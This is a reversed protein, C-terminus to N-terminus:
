RTRGLTPNRYAQLAEELSNPLAPVGPQQARPQAQQQAANLVNKAAMGTGLGLGAAPLAGGAAGLLAGKTGGGSGWGAAAGSGAGIAAILLPSAAGGTMATALGAGAIGGYKALKHWFGSGDQSLEGDHWHYGQPAPSNIELWDDDKAKQHQGVIDNELAQQVAQQSSGQRAQVGKQYQDVSAMFPDADEKSFGFNQYNSSPQQPNIGALQKDHQSLSELTAAKGYMSDILEKPLGGEPLRFGGTTKGMADAIAPDGPTYNFNQLQPLIASMLANKAAFKQNAGLPNAANATAANARDQEEKRQAM